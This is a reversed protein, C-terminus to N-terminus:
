VCIFVECRWVFFFFFFFSDRFIGECVRNVIFHYIGKASALRKSPPLPPPRRRGYILITSYLFTSAPGFFHSSCTFSFSVYPFSVNFSLVYILFSHPLFPLSILQSLFNFFLEFFTFLSNTEMITMDYGKLNVIM